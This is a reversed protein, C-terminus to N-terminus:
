TDGLLIDSSTICEGELCKRQFPFLKGEKRKKEVKGCAWGVTKVQYILFVIKPSHKEFKPTGWFWGSPKSFCLNGPGVMHM